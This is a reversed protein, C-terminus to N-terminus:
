AAIGIAGFNVTIEYTIYVVDGAERNMELGEPSAAVMEQYIEWTSSGKDPRFNENMGVEWVEGKSVGTLTNISRSNMMAWNHVALMIRQPKSNREYRGGLRLFPHIDKARQARQLSVISAPNQTMLAGSRLRNHSKALEENHLEIARDLVYVGGGQREHESEFARSSYLVQDGEIFLRPFAGFGVVIGEHKVLELITRPHSLIKEVRGISMDVDRDIYTRLYAGKVDDVVCRYEPVGMFGNRLAGSNYTEVTYVNDKGQFTTIIPDLVCEKSTISMDAPM